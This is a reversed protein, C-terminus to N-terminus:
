NLGWLQTHVFIVIIRMILVNINFCNNKQNYIMGMRCRM